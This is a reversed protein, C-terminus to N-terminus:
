RIIRMENAAILIVMLLFALALLAEGVTVTLPQRAHNM